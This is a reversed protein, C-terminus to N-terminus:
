EVTVRVTGTDKEGSASTATLVYATSTEPRAQFCIRESPVLTEVPPTLVVSAAGKVGYCLTAPGGKPVKTQAASFFLILGGQRPSPGAARQRKPDITVEIQQSIEAGDRSKAYLTYKTSAAPTVEICRARSPAIEEVAPELRVSAAGEVGYCVLTHDGKAITAPSAYFQTIAPPAPAETKKVEHAPEGSCGALVCLAVVPAIRKM